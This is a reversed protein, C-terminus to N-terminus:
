SLDEIKKNATSLHLAWMPVTLGVFVFFSNLSGCIKTIKYPTAALHFHSRSLAELDARFLLIKLFQPLSLEPLKLHLPPQQVLMLSKIDPALKSSLTTNLLKLELITGHVTKMPNFTIESICM